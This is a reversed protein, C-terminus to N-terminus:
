VNDIIKSTSNSSRLTLNYIIIRWYFNMHFWNESQLFFSLLIDIFFDDVLYYHLSFSNLTFDYFTLFECSHSVVKIPFDCNLWFFFFIHRCFWEFCFIDMFIVCFIYFFIQWVFYLHRHSQCFSYGSFFVSFIITKNSCSAFIDVIDMWILCNRTLAPMKLVLYNLCFCIYFEVQPSSLMEIEDLNDLFHFFSVYKLFLFFHM